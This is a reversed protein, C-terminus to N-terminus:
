AGRPVSGRVAWARAQLTFPGDSRGALLQDRLRDQLATQREAPLGSVYEGSPGVGSLFPRWYDDFSRYELTSVLGTEEVGELGCGSWLDALEGPRCLPMNREHRREAAPDLEVATDWLLRLMEMDGGYDWVASAVVGGPRTVRSMEKAAQRADPVFNLVLLSLSRDFDDAEFPLAQADAQEITVRPSALTTRMYEVFPTAADVGVVNVRERNELLTRTLSGTGCGVDLVREDEQVGALEILLSAM